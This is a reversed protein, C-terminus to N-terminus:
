PPPPGTGLERGALIREAVQAERVRESIWVYTAGERNSAAAHRGQPDLAVVNLGTGYPDDLSDADEIADRVAEEVSAGYRMAMVVSHATAARVAMEGRGTCAAAGYRNDAYVGAGVLPTDGLRGPYKFYWGSTSVGAALDGRSDLALFNITGGAHREPDSLLNRWRSAVEHYGRLGPESESVEEALREEWIAKAEPTLLDVREFGQEAAFRAAGEGVILVHPMCEMVRRAISVPHEYDKLAGVAGTSRTRGDMVAADLEVEGLLNPLGGLGVTHDDLNSEVLRCGLEVADLASGGSALVESAADMGVAGNKSAVVVYTPM